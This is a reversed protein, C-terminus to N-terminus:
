KKKNAYEKEIKNTIYLQQTISLVNNVLWYLVLGSPFFAMFATMMIPLFQMIKQQMPDMTAATPQLKQMGWMSIGMLVPLIFLPDKASLDHIWFILPAHRIEYSEMLVWYLALFVPMQILLPLCGGMPNVKEKKYMEMMAMSMKQRDDGFREKLQQLKPQLMRMKAFSRYQANALPYLCIKVTITVLIIALGWNVVFGQFTTLLWFLPQGIWWLFSYDVTLDLGDALQELSEQDKPGLYLTSTMEKEAQAGVNVWQQIVRIISVEGQNLVITSIENVSEQDPVWAAVFYHQLYAIWGGKTSVNLDKEDMDDFEYKEYRSESTSYAAGTYAQLGFGSNSETNVFRDRNFQNFVKFNLANDTKNNVRYTVKVQYTHEILEFIKYFEVGSDNVWKLTVKNQSGAETNPVVQYTARQATADPAGNGLLGSKAVFNRGNSNSLLVVKPEPQNLKQNFKLLKAEVVDGGLTDIKIEVSDNHLSVYSQEATTSTTKNNTVVPIDGDSKIESPEAPPLDSQIVPNPTKLAQQPANEEQWTQYLLFTIFGLALLLFGRSSELM